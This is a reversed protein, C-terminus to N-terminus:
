HRGASHFKSGTLLLVFRGFRQSVDPQYYIDAGPMDLKYKAVFDSSTVQEFPEHEGRSTSTKEPAAQLPSAAPQVKARKVPKKEGETETVTDGEAQARKM